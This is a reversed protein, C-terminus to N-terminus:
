PARKLSEMHERHAVQGIVAKMFAGNNRYHDSTVLNMWVVAPLTDIYYAGANILDDKLSPYCTATAGRMIGASILVWPGHCIAAVVKGVKFMDYVFMRVDPLMRLRDPSEFGGPIIVVDYDEPKILTISTNVKAPVGYKGHMEVGGPSAVDVSWGEELMRYLPYTFEEDQFNQAVLIIARTM